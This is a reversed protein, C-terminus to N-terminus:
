RATVLLRLPSDHCARWFLALLESSPVDIKHHKVAEPDVFVYAAYSDVLGHDGPLPQSRMDSLPAPPREEASGPEAAVSEAHPSGAAFPSTPPVGLRRSSLPM